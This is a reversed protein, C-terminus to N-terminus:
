CINKLDEAYLRRSIVLNSIKVVVQARFQSDKMMEIKM